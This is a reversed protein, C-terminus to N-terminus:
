NVIVLIIDKSTDYNIVGDINTEIYECYEENDFEWEEAYETWYEKTIDPFEKKYEEITYETYECRLAIPDFKIPEDEYMSELYDFLMSAGNYTFWNDKNKSMEYAFEHETIEKYM